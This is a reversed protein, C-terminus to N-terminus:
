DSGEQALAALADRALKGTVPRRRQLAMRDITDVLRRAADASREMRLVLTSIVAPEVGLQRDAFLKVLLARLLAEDPPAIRALALARLRSRLDPLGVALEGPAARTTMLVSLRGERALNLLHFLAQEDGIGQDIDEVAIAGAEIAAGVSGERLHAAAIREGGARARWVEVLHSKGAGAPGVIAMAQQPWGPWVDIANCAAENAPSLLFDERGMAPRLSLDLLMQQSGTAMVGRTRAAVDSGGRLM